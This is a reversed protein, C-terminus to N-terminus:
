IESCLVQLSNCSLRDNLILLTLRQKKGWIVLPCLLLTEVLAVNTVRERANHLLPMMARSPIELSGTAESDSGEKRSWWFLSSIISLNLSGRVALINSLCVKAFRVVYDTMLARVTNEYHM